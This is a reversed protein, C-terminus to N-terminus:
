KEPGDNFALGTGPIGKILTSLELEKRLAQQAAETVQPKSLVKLAPSTFGHVM